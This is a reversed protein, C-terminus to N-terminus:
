LGLDTSTSVGVSHKVNESYIASHGETVRTESSFIFSNPTESLEGCSHHGITGSLLLRDLHKQKGVVHLGEVQGLILLVAFM